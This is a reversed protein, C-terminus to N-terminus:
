LAALVIVAVVPLLSIAVGLTLLLRASRRVQPPYVEDAEFYEGCEPCRDRTLGVVIYGCNPCKPDKERKFWRCLAIGILCIGCLYSAAVLLGPPVRNRAQASAVYTVLNFLGLGLWLVNFTSHRWLWGLHWLFDSLRNM